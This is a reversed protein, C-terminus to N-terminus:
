GPYLDAPATIEVQLGGWAATFAGPDAGAQLHVSEPAPAQGPALLELGGVVQVPCIEAVPFGTRPGHYCVADVFARGDEQGCEWRVAHAGFRGPPAHIIARHDGAALEFRDAALQVARVGGGALEYRLRFDEAPFVGDAPHDFHPHWDGRDTLLTLASLVRPGGQAQRVFGSAFDRGDHLFRLRLTVAADEPTRLYGLLFRRQTWTDEHNCSGLTAAASFWTTGCRDGYRQEPCPRTGREVLTDSSFRDAPTADPDERRIFRTRLECPNQPLTTFRTRWAEPCPLGPVLRPMIAGGGGAGHPVIAVGTQQALYHALSPALHNAYARAHPGAWQQTAPHFHEAIVQWATQRLQEAAARVGADQALHLVRESEELAVMTYTPSNYETFSGHYRVLNMVRELRTRGFALLRPEGLLEGAVAAVGGGMIAINTYDLRVNRRFICWAAHGLAERMKAVLGAPLLAAHDHLMQALTAGCFDAWNWDPPDMQALPEDAYWPWVGYTSHFPDTDQLSLVKAIIEAARRNHAAGGAQLLGLAYHLSERIPHARTGAPLRSHYGPGAAPLALLAAAADYNRDCNALYHPLNADPM